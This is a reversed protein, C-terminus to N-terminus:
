LNSNSRINNKPLETIKFISDSEDFDDFKEFNLLLSSFIRFCVAQLERLIIRNRLNNAYNGCNEGDINIVIVANAM